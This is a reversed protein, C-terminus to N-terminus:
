HCSKRFARLRFYNYPLPVLFGALASSAAAMWFYSSGLDVCGGTLSYDVTNEAVEMAMMSIMSMGTATKAAIKWPLRDQGFRLLTTELLISTM